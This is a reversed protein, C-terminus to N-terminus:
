KDIAMIVRQPIMTLKLIMLFTATREKLKAWIGKRTKTKQNEYQSFQSTSFRPGQKRWTNSLDNSNGEHKNWIERKDWTARSSIHRYPDTITARRSVM